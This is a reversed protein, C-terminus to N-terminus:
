YEVTHRCLFFACQPALADVEDQLYAHHELQRLGRQAGGGDKEVAVQHALAQFWPLSVLGEM